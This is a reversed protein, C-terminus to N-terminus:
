INGLYITQNKFLTQKKQIAINILFIRCYYFFKTKNLQKSNLSTKLIM